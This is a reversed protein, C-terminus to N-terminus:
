GLNPPLKFVVGRMADADRVLTLLDARAALPVALQVLADRGTLKHRAV